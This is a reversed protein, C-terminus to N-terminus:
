NKPKPPSSEAGPQRPFLERILHRDLHELEKRVDLFPKQEDATLSPLIDDLRRLSQRISVQLQKFGNPHKEADIEKADLDKVCSQAEAQYKELVAVADPDNGAALDKQIEQFEADGLDKMLRAKHVPDPDHELRSRFTSVQDQPLYILGLALVLLPEVIRLTGLL